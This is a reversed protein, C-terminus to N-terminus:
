AAQEQLELAKRLEVLIIPWLNEWFYVTNGKPSTFVSVESLDDSYLATTLCVYKGDGDYWSIANLSDFFEWEGSADMELLEDWYERAQERVLSKEHRLEIIRSRVGEVTRDFDFEYLKESGVLKNMAYDFSLEGLFDVFSGDGVHTWTHAWPGFDGSIQITGGNVRSDDKGKFTDITVLTTGGHRTIALQTIKKVRCTYESDSM